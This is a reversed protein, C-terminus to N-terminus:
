NIRIIYRYIITGPGNQLIHSFNKKFRSRDSTYTRANWSKYAHTYTIRLCVSVCVYTSTCYYTYEITRYYNNFRVNDVHGMSSADGSFSHPSSTRLSTYLPFMYRQPTELFRFYGIPNLLCPPISTYRCVNVCARGRARACVYARLYM